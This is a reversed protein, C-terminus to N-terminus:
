EEVRTLKLGGDKNKVVELKEWGLLLDFAYLMEAATLFQQTRFAFRLAPLNQDVQVPQGVLHGYEQAVRGLDLSGTTETLAVQLQAGAPADAHSPLKRAFLAKRKAEDSTPYVFLFKDGLDVFSVGDLALVAGMAYVADQRTLPTQTRLYIGSGSLQAPRLLTRNVLEQFIQLVQFFDANQFNVVGAPLMEETPKTKYSSEEAGQAGPPIPRALKLNRVFERLEPTLKEFDGERGVVAFRDGDPHFVLGDLAKEIGKALEESPAPEDMQLTVRTGNGVVSSMLLTRGVLHQYIELVERRTAEKLRISGSSVPIGQNGPANRVARKPIKPLALSLERSEGNVRAQVTGAESDIKIVEVDGQRQGEGLLAFEEWARQPHSQFEILAVLNGVSTQTGAAQAPEESRPFQVIGKLDPPAPEGACLSFCCGLYVLEVM